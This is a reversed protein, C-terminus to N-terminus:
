SAWQHLRLFDWAQTVDGKATMKILRKTGNFSRTGIRHLGDKERLLLAYGGGPCIRACFQQGQKDWVDSSHLWDHQGQCLFKSSATNRFLLWGDVESCSWFISGYRHPEMLTIEGGTLTIVEGSAQSRIVYVAGSWPPASTYEIKPLDLTDRETQVSSTVTEPPTEIPTTSSEAEDQTATHELPTTEERESIEVDSAAKLDM